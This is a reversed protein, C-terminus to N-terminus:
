PQTGPGAVRQPAYRGPLNFQLGIYTRVTHPESPANRVTRGVAALLTMQHTLRQRIGINAILDHSKTADDHVEGIVELRPTASVESSLGLLWRGRGHSSLERGLEGNLELKGIEATLETPVIYVTGQDGIGTISSSHPTFEVQPYVSWAIPSGEQGLFRWKVGALANGAGHELTENEHNRLRVWPIELKLQIREGVGYNMDLLPAELRHENRNTDLQTAVNIEWYGPGPTDPDDTILPPGGQARAVGPASAVVAILVVCAPWRM